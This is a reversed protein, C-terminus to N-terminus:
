NLGNQPMHVNHSKERWSGGDLGLSQEIAFAISKRLSDQTYQKDVMTIGNRSGKNISFNVFRVVLLYVVQKEGFNRV